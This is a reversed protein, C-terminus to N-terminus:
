RGGGSDSDGPRSEARLARLTEELAGFADLEWYAHRFIQIFSDTVRIREAFPGPSSSAPRGNTDGKAPASTGLQPSDDMGVPTVSQISAALGPRGPKSETEDPGIVDDDRRQRPTDLSHTRMVENPRPLAGTKLYRSYITLLADERLRLGKNLAILVPATPRRKATEVRSVVATSLGSRQALGGASLHRLKRLPRVLLGFGAARKREQKHRPRVPALRAGESDARFLETFSLRSLHCSGASCDRATHCCRKPVVDRLHTLVDSCLAPQRAIERARGVYGIHRHM